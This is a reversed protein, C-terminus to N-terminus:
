SCNYLKSNLQNKFQQLNLKDLNNIQLDNWQPITRPFFSHLYINTRAFPQSLKMSHNARTIESQARAPIYQNPISIQHHLLKFLLILRSHRRRTELSTWKLTHLMETISDHQSRTWPRSLVFRAARHQVMELQHVLNYYVPDWISACYELCPLVLHKYATERLGPSCHHLNRRLFGLIRNSKNCVNNIHSKWSMRHHLTIGLYNHEEVIELPTGKMNYSFNSRLCKSVQLIKCKAVNFEMQWKSAWSALCDLDNQLIKHDCKSNITRYILCDDAFLHVQSQISSTIDNVYLLFLVPGLVSGQPVGSTVPCSSSYAGSVVVQQTRGNLFSKIWSLVKGRIGYFDLKNVLRTHAVKDFAKSFDLIAMDTQLKNDIAKVLDNTTLLLQAECSHFPRFGYQVESLINYSQLHKMIQSVLIHEMVKSILSTLSVPRYNKPDAKSGKKFIPSVYAHKWAAPLIGSELSQQFLHTLIPAIETATNKLFIASIGDPGSSKNCNHNALLKFVGNLTIEIDAIPPYPSMGMNPVNHLAETAFVSKFHNNLIEAKDSSETVVDGTPTKLSGIGTSDHRKSKIYRWFSKQNVTDSASNVANQLYKYHSSRLLNRVKHQLIKYEEWDAPDQYSKAKNYLRQKKRILRKLSSSLWPLHYRTGLTKSPVFKHILHLYQQHIFAWNEEVSRSTISNLDFYMNSVLVLNCRIKDWNAKKFLHIKRPPQKYYYLQSSIKVLVANHDSLGPLSDCSIVNDPHSM